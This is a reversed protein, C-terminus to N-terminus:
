GPLKTWDGDLKGHIFDITLFEDTNDTTDLNEEYLAHTDKNVFVMYGAETDQIMIHAINDRYIVDGQFVADPNDERELDLELAKIRSQKLKIEKKIQERTLPMTDGKLLKCNPLKRVTEKKKVGWNFERIAGAFTRVAEEMQTKLQEQSLLIPNKVRTIKGILPKRTKRKSKKKKVM